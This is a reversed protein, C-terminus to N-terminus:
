RTLAKTPLLTLCGGTILAAVGGILLWAARDTPNGTFFKSFHSALSDEENLGM